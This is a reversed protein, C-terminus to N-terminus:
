ERKYCNHNDQCQICVQRKCTPCQEVAPESKCFYCLNM